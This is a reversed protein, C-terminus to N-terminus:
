ARVRSSSLVRWAFTWLARAKSARQGRRTVAAVATALGARVAFGVGLLPWTLWWTAPSVRSAYLRGLNDLWATPVKIAGDARWTAGGQHVISIWPLYAIRHQHRRIRVGWEIDEAYIFFREDLGGVTDLVTRRILFCAGCIWDVDRPVRGSAQRSSLFLGRGFRPFLTALGLAHAIVSSPTPAYGADGVQHQWDPYVLRCGAAAYSPHADLFRVLDALAGPTPVVTDANLLLINRGRALTFALNNGRTFGLNVESEVTHVDPFNSRLMELTHDASANDVVIVETVLGADSAFVSDLCEKLVDRCNRAVIVVSLDVGGTQPPGSTQAGKGADASPLTPM